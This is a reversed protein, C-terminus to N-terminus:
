YHDGCWEIVVGNLVRCGCNRVKILNKTAEEFKSLKYELRRVDEILFQLETTEPSTGTMPFRKLLNPVPTM